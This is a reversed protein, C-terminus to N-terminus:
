GGSAERMAAQVTMWAREWNSCSSNLTRVVTRLEDLEARL